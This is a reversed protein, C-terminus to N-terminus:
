DEESDVLKIGEQEVRECEKLVETYIKEFAEYDEGFPVPSSHDPYLEPKRDFQEEFRQFALERAYYTMPLQEGELSINAALQKRLKEQFARYANQQFEDQGLIGEDSDNNGNENNSMKNGLILPCSLLRVEVIKRDSVGSALADVM